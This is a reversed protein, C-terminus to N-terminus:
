IILNLLTEEDIVCDYKSKDKRFGLFRPHTLRRARASVAQGDIEVVKDYMWDVMGVKGDVITTISKRLELELNPCVAVKHIYDSGDSKRLFVSVELAGVLDSFGKDPTGPLFGTVFGDVTDSFSGSVSRKIKVWANRPRSEKDIYSQHLNKAVVGEGSNEWIYELYDKKRSKVAKVKHINLDLSSLYNLVDNLFKKRLRYPQSRLDEGNYMLCDFAHYHLPRDLSKQIKLTEQSNLSLLAAVAQLITETYVGRNGMITSIHPNNSIIEGDLVFPPFLGKLNSDGWYVKDTYCVPLWDEVSLNRSYLEIGYDPHYSLVLRIGNLKEEFVINPDEFLSDYEQPRLNTYLFCLQPSEMSHRYKLGPTLSGNMRSLTYNQLADIFDKKKEKKGTMVVSLNKSFCERKLEALSRQVSM